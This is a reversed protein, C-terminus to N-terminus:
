GRTLEVNRRVEAKVEEIRTAIARQEEPTFPANDEDDPTAAFIEPTGVM